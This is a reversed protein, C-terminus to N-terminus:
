RGRRERAHRFLRDAEDERAQEERAERAAEPDGHEAVAERTMRHIEERDM